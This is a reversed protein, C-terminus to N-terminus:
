AILGMLMFQEHLKLIQPLLLEKDDNQIIYDAMLLKKEDSWQKEIRAMIEDRSIHDREMIRNLRVELPADVVIIKDLEKYTGSEFLLAAEKVIYKATFNQRVFDAFDEQVAPHVIGELIRLKETNNFVIAALKKRDLIGKSDFVDKGFYNLLKEKAKENEQLIFKGRMDANYVAVGLSSFIECCTTKGSGMGGTIGIKLM